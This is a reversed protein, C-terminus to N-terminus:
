SLVLWGSSHLKTQLRRRREFLRTRDALFCYIYALSLTALASIRQQSQDRPSAFGLVTATAAVVGIGIAM